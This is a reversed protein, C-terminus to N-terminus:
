IELFRFTPLYVLDSTIEGDLLKWIPRASFGGKAHDFIVNRTIGRLTLVFEAGPLAAWTQLTICDTREIWAKTDTGVLTIPRGSQKVAVDILLAGTTSYASAQHVPSWEFEDTWDLRDSIDLTTGDYALTISM